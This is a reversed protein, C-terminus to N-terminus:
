SAPMSFCHQFKISIVADVFFNHLGLHCSVAKQEALAAAAAAIAEDDHIPIMTLPIRAIGM